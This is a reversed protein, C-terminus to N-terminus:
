GVTRRFLLLVVRGIGYYFIVQVVIAIPLILFEQSPGHAGPFIVMSGYIGALVGPIGIYFLDPRATAVAIAVGGACLALGRLVMREYGHWSATWNKCGAVVSAAVVSRLM